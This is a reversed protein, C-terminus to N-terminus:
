KVYDMLNMQHLKAIMSLGAQYAVELSKLEVSNKMLDVGMINSYTTETEYDSTSIRELTSEIINAKAGLDTRKSITNDIHTEILGLSVTSIENLDGSAVSDRIQILDAIMTDFIEVGPVNTPISLSSDVNFTIIGGNANSTVGTPPDGILEYPKTTTNTGSFIYKGNYQQNALNTVELIIQNIQQVIADRSENNITDSGSQILLNKVKTLSDATQGLMSETYNILSKADEANRALQTNSAKINELTIAKHALVPDEHGKQIKKGTTSQTILKDYSIATRNVTNVSSMNMTVNSMRM